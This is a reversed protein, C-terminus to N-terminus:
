RIEIPLSNSLRLGAATFSRDGIQLRTQPATPGAHSREIVQPASPTLLLGVHVASRARASVQLGAGGTQLRNEAECKVPLWRLQRLVPSTTM